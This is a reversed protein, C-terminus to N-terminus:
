RCMLSGAAGKDQSVCAELPRLYYAELDRSSVNADYTGRNVLKGQAGQPWSGEMDYTYTHKCTATVQRWAGEGQLGQVYISVLESTLM